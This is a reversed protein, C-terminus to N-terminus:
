NAYAIIVSRTAPNVIAVRGSRARACFSGPSSALGVARDRLDAPVNHRFDPERLLAMDGSPGSLADWNNCPAPTARWDTYQRRLRRSADKRKMPQGTNASQSSLYTLGDGALAQVTKESMKLVFFGYSSGGPGFGEDRVFRYELRDTSVGLPLLTEVHKQIGVEHLAYLGLLLAALGVLEIPSRM